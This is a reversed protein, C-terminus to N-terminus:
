VNDQTEGKKIILNFDNGFDDLYYETLSTDQLRHIHINSDHKLAFLDGTKVDLTIGKEKCRICKDNVFIELNLYGTMFAKYNHVNIRYKRAGAIPNATYQALLHQYMMRVVEDKNFYCTNLDLWTGDGKKISLIERQSKGIRETYTRASAIDTFQLDVICRRPFFSFNYGEYHLSTDSYQLKGKIDVFFSRIIFYAPIIDLVGFVIVITWDADDSYPGKLLCTIDPWILYITYLIITLFTLIGFYSSISSGIASWKAKGSDKEFKSYNNM